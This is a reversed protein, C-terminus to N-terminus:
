LSRRRFLWSVYWMLICNYVTVQWMWGWRENWTELSAAFHELLIVTAEALHPLIWYSFRLGYTLLFYGESMMDGSLDLIYASFHGGLYLMLGVIGAPVEPMRLSLVMIILILTAYKFPFFFMLKLLSYNVPFVQSRDFLLAHQMPHMGFWVFQILYLEIVLVLFCGTVIIWTGLFKGFIYEGRTLPKPLISLIVGRNIENPILFMSLVFGIIVIFVEGFIMAAAGMLTCVFAKQEYEPLVIGTGGTLASLDEQIAPFRIMMDLAQPHFLTGGITGIMLMGILLLFIVELRGISDLVTVRAIALAPLFSFKGTRYVLLIWVIAAIIMVAPIITSWRQGLWSWYLTFRLYSDM